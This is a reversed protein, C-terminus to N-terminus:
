AGLAPILSGIKCGVLFLIGQCIKRITVLSGVWTLRPVICRLVLLLRLRVTKGRAIMPPPRSVWQLGSLPPLPPMMLEVEPPHFISNSFSAGHSGGSLHNKISSFVRSAPVTSRDQSLCPKAPQDQPIPCRFDGFKLLPRKLLPRAKFPSRQRIPSAFRVVKSSKSKRKRSVLTWSCAEEEEWRRFELKWNLCGDRWLHFYVDFHTTTIRKLSSVMLGVKKSAISIGCIVRSFHFHCPKVCGIHFGGLSGCIVSHLAMGVSGEFLRFSSRRFVALLFFSGHPSSSPHHVSSGFHHFVESKFRRGPSFDTL